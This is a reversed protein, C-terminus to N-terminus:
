DAARLQVVIRLGGAGRNEAHVTGGVAEVNRQVIWLGIGFHQENRHITPRHSVYRKFMTGLIEAPAGPGEDEVTM